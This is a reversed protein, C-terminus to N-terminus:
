EAITVGSPAPTPAGPTAGAPGAGLAPDAAARAAPMSPLSTPRAPAEDKDRASASGRRGLLAGLVPLGTLAAITWADFDHVWLAAGGMALAAACGVALGASWRAARRRIGRRTLDAVVLAAGALGLPEAVNGAFRAVEAADGSLFAQRTIVATPLLISAVVSAPAAAITEALPFGYSQRDPTTPM